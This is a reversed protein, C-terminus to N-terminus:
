KQFIRTLIVIFRVAQIECEIGKISKSHFTGSPFKKKVIKYYEEISWRKHYFEKLKELPFKEKDLLSTILFYPKSARVIKVRGTTLDKSCEFEHDKMFYKVLRVTRGEFPIVKDTEGSANFKLIYNPKIPVRIVFDNNKNLSFKRIFEKSYYGMDFVFIKGKQDILLDLFVGREDLSATHKSELPVE